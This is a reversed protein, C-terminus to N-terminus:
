DGDVSKSRQSQARLGAGTSSVQEKANFSVTWLQGFASSDVVAPDMNHNPLYGSQGPDADVYTDTSALAAVQSGLAMAVAALKYLPYFM